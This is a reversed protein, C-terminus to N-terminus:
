QMDGAIGGGDDYALAVLDVTNSDNGAVTTVTATDPLLGSAGAFIGVALSAAAALSGLELLRWSRPDLAALWGARAGKGSRSEQTAQALVRQRLALSAPEPALAARLDAEFREEHGMTM